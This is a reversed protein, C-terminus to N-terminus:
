SVYPMACPNGPLVVSRSESSGLPHLAIAARRGKLGCTAPEVGAVGVVVGRWAVGCATASALKTASALLRPTEVTQNGYAARFLDVGNKRVILGVGPVRGEEVESRLMREIKAAATMSGAVEDVVQDTM